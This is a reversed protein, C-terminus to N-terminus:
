RRRDALIAQLAADSGAVFDRFTPPAVISPMIAEATDRPDADQWWLTSYLLLAGSNPLRISRTEGFHNAPAATPEGVIIVDSVASLRAVFNVAASFTLRGVVVYLRGPANFRSRLLRVILPRLLTNDGGNNRRVDVVLRQAGSAEASDLARQAFRELPEDDADAVANFQIWFLKLSDINAFWYPKAPERLYLPPSPITRTLAIPAPADNAAPSALTVRAREGSSLVVSLSVSDPSSSAGVLQLLGPLVLRSQVIDKFGTSTESHVYPRLAAMTAAVSRGGVSDIRAGLLRAHAADARIIFLGEEFLYVRIGVAHFPAGPYGNLVVQTHADHLSAAVLALQAVAHRQDANRFSPGVAAVISDFAARARPQLLKPHQTRLTRALLELDTENTSRAAGTMVLTIAVAPIGLSLRM